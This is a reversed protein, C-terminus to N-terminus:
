IRNKKKLDIERFKSDRFGLSNTIVKFKPHIGGGRTETSNPSLHHHFIEHRINTNKQHNFFKSYTFDLILILILVVSLVFLFLSYKKIGM